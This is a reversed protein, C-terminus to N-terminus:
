RLLAALLDAGLAATATLDLTHRVYRGRRTTQLLGAKKLVALHRSVEPPTLHWAEALEGTTHPGRALTRCLRQRVPHALADLRRRVLDMSLPRGQSAAPYQVVPRWGPAHVTLLHPRGYVSPIFTVGDGAASTSSDQLKDIRIRTGGPGTDLTVAPSVATLAAEIGHRAFLDAKHRADAALQHEVQRWADLFFAEACAELLERVAARVASPDALLREAFAAQRPGRALALELALELARDLDRPLRPSGCSMVLAAAVYTEDPIADVADLEAPLTPRPRGPVLFDARSSRWLFEAELLRDALAPKLGALTAGAWAQLAPHHAPEALVHLMSTLEALPSPAFVCREAPMGTIDITLAM